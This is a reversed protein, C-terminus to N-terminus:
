SLVVCYPLRYPTCAGAIWQLGVMVSSIGGVVARGANFHDVLSPVLIGYTFMIGCIFVHAAFSGAVVVWCRDQKEKVQVV